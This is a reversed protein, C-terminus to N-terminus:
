LSCVRPFKAYSFHLLQEDSPAAIRFSIDLPIKVIVVTLPAFLLGLIIALELYKNLTIVHIRKLQNEPPGIPPHRFILPESLEPATSNELWRGVYSM